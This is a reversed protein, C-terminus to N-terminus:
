IGSLYRRVDYGQIGGKKDSQPVKGLPTSDLNTPEVYMDEVEQDYHKQFIYEPKEKEIFKGVSLVSLDVVPTKPNELPLFKGELAGYVNGSQVSDRAIIGAQTLHEMLRSQAAYVEDTYSGRAFAIIKGNAPVIAIDMEPHDFLMLSGDISKRIELNM